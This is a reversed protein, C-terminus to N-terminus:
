QRKARRFMVSAGGLGVVGSVALLGIAIGTGPLSSSQVPSSILTSCNLRNYVTSYDALTTSYGSLSSLVQCAAALQATTFMSTDGAVAANYIAIFTDTSIGASSTAAALTANLGSYQDAQSGTPFNALATGAVLLVTIFVIMLFTVVRIM